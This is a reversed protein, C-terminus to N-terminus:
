LNHVDNAKNDKKIINMKSEIEKKIEERIKKEIVNKFEEEADKVSCLGLIKLHGTLEYYNKEFVSRWGDNFKKAPYHCKFEGKANINISKYFPLFKLIGGLSNKGQDVYVNIINENSNKINKQDETDRLGYIVIKYPRNLLDETNEITDSINFPRVDSPYVTETIHSHCKWNVTTNTKYLSMSVFNTLLLVGILILLLIVINKKKM